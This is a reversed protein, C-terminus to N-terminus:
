GACSGPRRTGCRARPSPRLSRRIGAPASPRPQLWPGTPPASQVTDPASGRPGIASLLSPHPSTLSTLHPSDQSLHPYPSWALKPAPFQTPPPTPSWSLHPAALPHGVLRGGLLRPWPCPWLGALQTLSLRRGVRWSTVHLYRCSVLNQASGGLNAKKWLGARDQERVRAHRFM